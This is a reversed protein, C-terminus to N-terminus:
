ILMDIFLSSLFLFYVYAYSSVPFCMLMHYPFDAQNWMRYSCIHNKKNNNNANHVCVALRLNIKTSCILAQEHLLSFNFISSCALLMGLLKEKFSKFACLSIKSEFYKCTFLKSM